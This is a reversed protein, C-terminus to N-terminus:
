KNLLSYLPCPWLKVTVPKHNILHLNTVNQTARIVFYLKTFIIMVSFQIKISRCINRVHEYYVKINYLPLIRTKIHM